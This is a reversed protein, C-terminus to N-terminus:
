FRGADFHLRELGCVTKPPVFFYTNVGCQVSLGMLGISDGPGAVAEELWYQLIENVSPETDVVMFPRMDTSLMHVVAPRLCHEAYGCFRKVGATCALRAQAITRVGHVGDLAATNEV